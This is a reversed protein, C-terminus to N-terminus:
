SGTGAQGAKSQTTKKTPTAPKLKPRRMSNEVEGMALMSKSLIPMAHSCDITEIHGLLVDLRAVLVALATRFNESPEDNGGFYSERIAVFAKKHKLQAVLEKVRDRHAGSNLSCGSVEHAFANRIRRVFQLSRTFENDILGLRNALTIKASFTGLPADGDLLEDKAGTTPAFFQQLVQYLLLDLKAAGLIVAARDSESKFEEVFKAFEEFNLGRTQKKKVALETIEESSSTLEDPCQTIAMGARKCM